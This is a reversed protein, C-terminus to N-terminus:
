EIGGLLLQYKFVYFFNLNKQVLTPHKMFIEFNQHGSYFNTFHTLFFSEQDSCESCACSHLMRSIMVEPIFTNLINVSKHNM